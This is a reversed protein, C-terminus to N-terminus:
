SKDSCSTRGSLMGSGSRNNDAISPCEFGADTWSSYLVNVDLVGITEVINFVVWSNCSVWYPVFSHAEGKTQGIKDM